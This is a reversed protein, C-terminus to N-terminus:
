TRQKSRGVSKSASKARSVAVNRAPTSKRPESRGAVSHSPASSSIVRVSSRNKSKPTPRVTIEIDNGLANLFRYLREM